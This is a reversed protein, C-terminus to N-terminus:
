TQNLVKMVVTTKKKLWAMMIRNGDRTLFVSFNFSNQFYNLPVKPIIKFLSSEPRKGFLSYLIFLPFSVSLGTKCDIELWEGVCDLNSGTGRSRTDCCPVMLGSQESTRNLINIRSIQEKLHKTYPVTVAAGSFSRDGCLTLSV